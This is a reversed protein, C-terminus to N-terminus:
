QSPWGNDKALSLWASVSDEEDDDTERDTYAFLYLYTNSYVSSDYSVYPSFLGGSSDYEPAVQAPCSTAWEISQGPPAYLLIPFVGMAVTEDKLDTTIKATLSVDTGNAWAAWTSQGDSMADLDVMKVLEGSAM